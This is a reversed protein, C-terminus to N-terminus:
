GDLAEILSLTIKILGRDDATWGSDNATQRFSGKPSQTVIAAGDPLEAAM